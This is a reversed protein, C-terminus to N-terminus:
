DRQTETQTDAARPQLTLAGYWAKLSSQTNDTDTMLALALLPGPPEGFAQLFDAHVDREHDRWRGLQEAGSEVVLKRIRDTRPNAVVTGVPKTNSWVYALSAYPLPEGTLLRSLESLRHVRPALTTRDGDFTLVIRVPSDENQADTLDAGPALRDVKWSFSLRGAQVPATQMEQRLISVSRDAAVVLAPRGQVNAADFRVFDKGPLLFPKWEQMPEPTKFLRQAALRAVPGHLIVEPQVQEPQRQDGGAEAVGLSAPPSACATLLGLLFLVMTKLLMM